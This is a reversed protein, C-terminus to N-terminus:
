ANNFECDEFIVNKLTRGHADIDHWKCSKFHLDELAQEPLQQKELAVRKIQRDSLKEKPLDNLLQIFEQHDLVKNFFFAMSIDTNMLLMLGVVLWVSRRRRHSELSAGSYESSGIM